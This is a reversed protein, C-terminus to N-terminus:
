RTVDQEVIINGRMLTKVIGDPATYQLDYPAMDFDWGETLAHSFNLICQNGSVTIGGDTSIRAHNGIAMDLRGKDINFPTKSDGITIHCVINKDDGRYIKINQQQM